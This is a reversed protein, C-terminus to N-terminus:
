LPYVLAFETIAYNAALFNGLSLQKMIWRNASSDKEGAFNSLVDVPVPVPM